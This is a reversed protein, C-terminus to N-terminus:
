EDSWNSDFEFQLDDNDYYSDMYQEDFNDQENITYTLNYLSPDLRNCLRMMNQATNTMIHDSQHTHSFGFTNIYYLVLKVPHSAQLCIEFNDLIYHHELLIRVFLCLVHAVLYPMNVSGRHHYFARIYLECYESDLEAIIRVFSRDLRAECEIYNDIITINM